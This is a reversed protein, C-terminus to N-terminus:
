LGCALRAAPYAQFQRRSIGAAHSRNEPPRRRHRLSHGSPDPRDDPQPGRFLRGEARFGALFEPQYPRLGSLDWPALADTYTKPLTRSALVLVDDFVRAVRGRVRSWRVKAVQQNKTQAKGNVMVRVRRNEYYVTGRQGQYQTKTDADYTWYPVYIGQLRRGKRAYAQLGNPAFWLKGLWATMAERAAEENLAFPLVARPKIHRHTGTDTVVPTACFPCEAAHTDPEFEVQAACNPCKLVRMEEMQADPLSAELGAAYDQEAIAATNGWPGLGDIVEEAGCHACHLADSGPKYRLDGGCTGCPFRHDPTPDSAPEPDM